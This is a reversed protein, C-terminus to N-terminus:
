NVHIRLVSAPPFNWPVYKLTDVEDVLDRTLARFRRAHYTFQILPGGPPLFKGASRFFSQILPAPFLLLPLGSLIADVSEVGEAKLIADLNQIDGHIVRIQPYEVVLADYFVKDKELVILRADPRMRRLIEATFSGTGPGVELITKCASWDVADCMARALARSSPAFAGVTTWNAFVRSFFRWRSQVAQM